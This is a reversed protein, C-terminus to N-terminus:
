TQHKYSSLDVPWPTAQAWFHTAKAEACNCKVDHLSRLSALSAKVKLGVDHKQVTTMFYYRLIHVVCAWVRYAM